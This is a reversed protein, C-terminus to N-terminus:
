LVSWSLMDALTAAVGGTERPAAVSDPAMHYVDHTILDDTELQIDYTDLCGANLLVKELQSSRATGGMPLSQLYAIWGAQAKQQAEALQDAPVLVGGVAGFALTNAATVVPHDTSPHRDDIYLQVTDVTDGGLPNVAGAIVVRVRGPTAATNEPFAHARTVEASAEKAWKEYVDEPPVEALAAFMELMRVRLAEDSEDDRGQELIPSGPRSFHYTDGNIFSASPTAGDAFSLEIGTGPITMTAPSIPTIGGSTYPAGNLSYDFQATGAAGTSTIRVVVRATPVTPTGGVIMSGQGSGGHTVLSYTQNSNLVTVGPLSTILNHISGAPDSYASGPSEAKFRAPTSSDGIPLNLAEDLIYRRGSDAEVVLEGPNVDYPGAGTAVILNVRQITYTAPLRDRMFNQQALLSLWDGKSERVLGGGAILPILGAAFDLLAEAESETVTRVVAGETFDDVPFGAGNLRAFLRDRIQDATPTALLQALTLEAM